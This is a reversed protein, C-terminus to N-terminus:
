KEFVADAPMGPKLKQDANDLKIEVAYVTTSRSEETQTNRPTYEAEDSIYNVTGTFTENPFSDVTVKASEGLIVKGFEEETVYVTLKVQNLDGIEYVTTGAAITEGTKVPNSLVIGDSPSTVTYKGLTVEAEKLAAQATELASQAQSVNADATEVSANAAQVQLSEDRTLLANQKNQANELRARAAATRARAEKVDSASTGTLMANYSKQAAELNTKAEDYIKQAADQLDTKDETDKSDKAQQLTQDATDFTAQAKNVKAEADVFDKNTADKLTKELDAQEDNLAKQATEVENEAATILESKEFYWNPLDSQESNKENWRASESSTDSKRNADVVINYQIKANELNQKALKLASEAQHVQAEAEGYKTQMLDDDLKFVEDGKKVQDGKSYKMESVRGGVESSIRIKDTDITGSATLPKDKETLNISVGTSFAAILILVLVAAAAIWIKKNNKM